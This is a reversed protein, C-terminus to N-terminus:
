GQNGKCSQALQRVNSGRQGSRAQQRVARGNGNNGSAESEPTSKYALTADAVCGRHTNTNAKPGKAASAAGAFGVLSAAMLIMGIKRM